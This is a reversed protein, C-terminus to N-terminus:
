KITLTNAVDTCTDEQTPDSNDGGCSLAYGSGNKATVWMWMRLNGQNSDILVFKNGNLDVQQAATIKYGGDKLGRLAELIYEANTGAFPESIFVVLNKKDTNIECVKVHMDDASVPASVKNWGPQVSLSWNDEAFVQRPPAVPVASASASLTPCSSADCPPVSETPKSCSACSVLGLILLPLIFLLRKM